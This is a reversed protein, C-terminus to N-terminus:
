RQTKRAHYFPLFYPASASTQSPGVPLQPLTAAAQSATELIQRSLSSIPLVESEDGCLANVLTKFLLELCHAQTLGSGVKSVSFAM